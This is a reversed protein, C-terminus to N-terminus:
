RSLSHRAPRSTVVHTERGVATPLSPWPNRRARVIWLCPWSRSQRGPRAVRSAGNPRAQLSPMIHSLVQRVLERMATNAAELQERTEFITLSTVSKDDTDVLTYSVFGPLKEFLPFIQEKAALAVESVEGIGEYKRISAFM